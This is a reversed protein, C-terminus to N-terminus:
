RVPVSNNMVLADAMRLYAYLGILAATTVFVFRSPFRPIAVHPVLAWHPLLRNIEALHHWITGGNHRHIRPTRPRDDYRRLQLEKKFREQVEAELSIPPYDEYLKLAQKLLSEFPLDDPIQSLLSHICAMDCDVSFIENSRHVVVSAAVYLPMLPPSALFYDYLRVVDRYQNLSHGYWTLFWPLCFVTGVGSREMYEYLEPHVRYILPYIYNLLYSTRDMTPEMCDKLHGTSLKEMIQFAVAEGVVLLFTVAVDHYGQYYQLHPYKIIVRLILRTLQDQLAVRQEYPIGPPFRKLSRNVDLVVQHYEAHAELEKHTPLETAAQTDLGLLQPWVRRRLADNVLGGESLALTKLKLADVPDESLAAEIESCKERMVRSLPAEGFSLEAAVCGNQEAAILEQPGSLANVSHNERGNSIENQNVCDKHVKDSDDESYVPDSINSGSDGM